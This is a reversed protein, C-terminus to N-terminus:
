PKKEDKPFKGVPIVRSLTLVLLTGSTAVVCTTIADRDIERGVLRLVGLGVVIGIVFSVLYEAAYLLANKTFSNM